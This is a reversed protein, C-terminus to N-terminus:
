PAGDAVRRLKVGYGPKHGYPGQNYDLVDGDVEYIREGIKVQSDAPWDGDPTLMLLETITRGALAATHREMDSVPQIAIVKRATPVPDGYVKQGLPTEGIVPRTIHVVAHPTPRRAM